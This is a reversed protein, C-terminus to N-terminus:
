ELGAPELNHLHCSEKAARGCPERGEKLGPWSGTIRDGGKEGLGLHFHSKAMVLKRYDWLGISTKKILRSM